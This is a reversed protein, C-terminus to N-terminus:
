EVKPKVMAFCSLAREAKNESVAHLNVKAVLVETTAAPTLHVEFKRGPVVEKVIASVAPNDCVARFAVVPSQGDAISYTIVKETTPAAHDWYVTRPSLDFIRPLDTLLTLVHPEAQDTAEVLLRKEQPGTYNATHFELKIRGKEGPQYVNKESTAGTCSCDPKIAAIVVEGAPGVVFPFEAVMVEAGNAPLSVTTTEFRLQGPCPNVWAFSCCAALGLAWGSTARMRM